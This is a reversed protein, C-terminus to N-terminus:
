PLYWCCVVEVPEIWTIPWGLYDQARAPAAGMLMAAAAVVLWRVM